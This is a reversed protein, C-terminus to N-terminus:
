GAPHGIQRLFADLQRLCFAANPISHTEWTRALMALLFAAVLRPVLAPPIDLLHCYRRWYGERLFTSYFLRQPSFLKTEMYSFHCLDHLPMGLWESSEWDILTTTGGSLERMNWPTFDGHVHVTPVAVDQDLYALASDVSVSHEGYASHGRLREKLQHSRARLSIVEGTRALDLLLRLYDPKLRRSGMRGGLYQQMSACPDESYHLVRPASFRGDLKRLTEVEHRISARAAFTLPFKVVANLGQRQDVLFVTLKDTAFLIVPPLADAEYGIHTLLLSGANAPLHTQTAGPLFRLAGLRAAIRVGAWLLRSAANYPHWESLVTRTLTNRNPLLWRPGDNGPIVTYPIKNDPNAGEIGLAALIRNLDPTPASVFQPTPM